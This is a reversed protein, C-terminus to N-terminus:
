TKLAKVRQNKTPIEHGGVHKLLFPDFQDSRFPDRNKLGLFNVLFKLLFLFGEGFFSM